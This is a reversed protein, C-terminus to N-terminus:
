TMYGYPVYAAGVKAAPAFEGGPPVGYQWTIGALGPDQYYTLKDGPTKGIEGPAQIPSNGEPGQWVNGNAQTIRVGAFKPNYQEGYQRLQDDLGRRDGAPTFSTELWLDSGKWVAKRPMGLWCNLAKPGHLDVHQLDWYAPTESGFVVGPEDTFDSFFTFDSHGTFYAIRIGPCKAGRWAQALDAHEAEPAVKVHCAQVQVIQNTRFTPGNVGTLLGGEIHTIGGTAGVEPLITVPDGVGTIKSVPKMVVRYKGGRLAVQQRGGSTVNRDVNVRFYYGRTDDPSSPYTGPSNVDVVTFPRGQDDKFNAPNLPDAGQPLGPPRWPLLGTVPAGELQILLKKNEDFAAAINPSGARFKAVEADYKTFDLTM